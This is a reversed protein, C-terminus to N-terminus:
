EPTAAQTEAEFTTEEPLPKRGRPPHVLIPLILAITMM